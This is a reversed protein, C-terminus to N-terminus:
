PNDAAFGRIRSSFNSSLWDQVGRGIRTRVEMEEPCGHRCEGPDPSRWGTKHEKCNRQDIGRGNSQGNRHHENQRAIDPYVPAVRSKVKGTLQAQGIGQLPHILLLATVAGLMLLRARNAWNPCRRSSVCGGPLSTTGRLAIGNGAGLRRDFNM